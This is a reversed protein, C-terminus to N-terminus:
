HFPRLRAAMRRMAQAGGGVSKMLQRTQAFQKLVRNVDEVRTGSGRAIRKRRSGNLVAPDRREAVTMSDLIAAARRLEREGADADVGKAAGMGPIMSLVKDLPGM